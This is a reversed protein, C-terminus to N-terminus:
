SEYVEFYCKAVTSDVLLTEIKITTDFSVTIHLTYSQDYGDELAVEDCLVRM